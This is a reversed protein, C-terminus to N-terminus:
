SLAKNDPVLVVCAEKATQDAVPLTSTMVDGAEVVDDRKEDSEGM